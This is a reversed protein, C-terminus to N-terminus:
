DPLTWFTIGALLYAGMGTLFVVGYGFRLALISAIVSAVVSTFGNVAWAWPAIEPLRIKIWTLGTPFPIGMLFGIPALGFVAAALRGLYPWGLVVEPFLSSFLPFGLACLILLGWGWYGLGWDRRSAMSGLGSFFLISGVVVAFSYIPYGLFLIWRQILPIEILMFGLGLFGFYLLISLGRMKGLAELLPKSFFLPLLILILSLILMLALLALLIFYGGGGFPQWTRGLTSVVQPTQEWTFYHFFFPRHDRPPSIQFPYDALYSVRNSSQMLGKLDQYYQPEPLQNFRNLEASKIDPAWVLDFRRSETFSRVEQLEAAQWGQPKILVTMTQVSRYAVIKEPMKELGAREGAELLTAMLRISESPPNQLWRTIVLFGEPQVAQLADRFGEMTLTYDEALSFAGSTVPRYADTLPYYILDFRRSARQLYTRDNRVEVQVGPHQYIDCEQCSAGAAQLILPNEVVASVQKAGGALAQLVGLGGGPKLVLVDESSSLSFALSEPMWGAAQFSEPSTQTLPQLPGGDISMGMQDPPNGQYQYSLGPLRHTGAQSFVDVRSVANWAGFQSESDPYRRAQALGKYPSVRLGLPSIGLSNMISLGLFILLALSMFVSVLTKLFRDEEQQDRNILYAGLGCLFSVLVAGPVGSLELALPTLLAGLASGVLNAAYIFHHNESKVSLVVGVGLGSILFPLSLVFYYLSFYLTQVREWAISYSDFPIWNVGGYALGVSFSFGLGTWMLFRSVDVDKLSPFVSLITGSAGLGLLALSVVLFAFHYFQAVGLLRTLTTEFILTAAALFGVGITKKNIM